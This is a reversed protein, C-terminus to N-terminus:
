SALGSTGGGGYRYVVSLVHVLTTTSLSIIAPTSFTSLYFVWAPIPGVLTRPMAVGTLFAYAAMLGFFLALAGRWIQGVRYLKPRRIAFERRWRYISPAALFVIWSLGLFLVAVGFASFLNIALPSTAATEISAAFIWLLSSLLLLPVLLSGVPFRIPDDYAIKITEIFRASIRRILTM